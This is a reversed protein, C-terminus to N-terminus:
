RLIKLSFMLEHGPRRGQEIAVAAGASFTLELESLMM